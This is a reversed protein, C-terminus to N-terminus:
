KYNDAIAYISEFIRVDEDTLDINRRAMMRRAIDFFKALSVDTFGSSGGESFSAVFNRPFGSGHINVGVGLVTATNFMCNIGAKSHDGMILGCFQLGTRLFRHARYNWLKIETYDNKLNSAVTGGGINCWEGIVANGLFGDHAKNSYGIMVVNNLEGGVKCHPGITTAGYIRTGMNVVGGECLAFAGRISSGEMVEANRGIYIPGNKVNLIAAEVIAGEEIFIKPTGDPYYMEGVVTNTSSLTLSKRGSTMSIFDEVLVQENYVFVDYLMNISLLSLSCKIETDWKRNNFDSLSGRFAILGKDNVIASGITMALIIEVLDPSPCINGAIFLNDNDESQKLPYKGSLYDVTLYSYVGSIYRQWKERITTIGIRFDALPRTFSLPLLNERTTSDDFLIINKM